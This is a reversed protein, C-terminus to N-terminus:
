YDASLGRRGLVLYMLVVLGSTLPAQLWGMAAAYGFRFAGFAQQYGYLASTLSSYLPGGGTMVYVIDFVGYASTVSLFSCLLITPALLPLIVSRIQRFRSAGDIAAAELLEPHINQLGALYFMAYYGVGQWLTVVMLSLLSTSTNQLWNVPQSLLHLRLLVLNLIGQPNFIWQWIIAIAVSSTVVPIYTATRFVSVGPLRRNLLIAVMISVWQLPPVVAIFELSHVVGTWFLPDHLARVYNQLGVWLPPQFISYQTFSLYLGDVVPYYHFVVLLVAAPALLAYALAAQNRRLIRASGRARVVRAATAPVTATGKM